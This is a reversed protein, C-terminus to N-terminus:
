ARGSAAVPMDPSGFRGRLSNPLAEEIGISWIQGAIGAPGSFNVPRNCLTRGTWEAPDRRSPGTVLVEQFTGVMAESYQQAFSTIRAQLVALRRDKVEEPVSDRLRTAPTNPRSSYKFSFSQDFRVQSVLDMTAAFDEETEGPFGVIFDSSIRIEPRAERLKHIKELYEAVTHKRHMRRLIRDSGSQVPLHLHPVLIPIDRHAAILRDDLNNPHSTTYRIRQLGSIRALRELLSALDGEGVLGTAGRYANVNQGLLTIEVVGQDVLQRVERIIDPMPRSYERGRTHPVVCFTCFKDCGEQVTVFATPGNRGPREPLRDFKELDPFDLDVQPRREALCADLMDPLRHLTQPGFVLDVFPARRRLREGEQSAVCGGVAIIRAPDQEKLPRWFGLQTYVKDEAKERISCTNLILVDARDPDEVPTLGHSSALLDAMRESDYENM